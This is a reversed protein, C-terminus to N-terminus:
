HGDHSMGGDMNGMPMPMNGMPMNGMPMNM